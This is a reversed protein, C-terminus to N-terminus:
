YTVIDEFFVVDKLPIIMDIKACFQVNTCTETCNNNFRTLKTHAFM